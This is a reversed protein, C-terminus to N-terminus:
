KIYEIIIIIVLFILDYGGGGTYHANKVVMLPTNESINM